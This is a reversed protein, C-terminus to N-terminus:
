DLVLAIHNKLDRLVEVGDRTAVAVTSAKLPALALLGPGELSAEVTLSGARARTVARGGALVVAALGEDWTTCFLIPPGSRSAEAVLEHLESARPANPGPILCAGAYAESEVELTVDGARLAVRGELREPHLGARRAALLLGSANTAEATLEVGAGCAEMYSRERAVQVGAAELHSDLVHPPAYAIVVYGAGELPRGLARVYGQGAEAVTWGLPELVARPDCAEPERPLSALAEVADGLARDVAEMLVAHARRMLGRPNLTYISYAPGSPAGRLRRFAALFPTAGLPGVVARASRGRGRPLGLSALGEEDVVAAGAAGERSVWAVLYAAVGGGGVKAILYRSNVGPRTARGPELAAELGAEALAAEMARLAAEEAERRPFPGGARRAMSSALLSAVRALQGEAM